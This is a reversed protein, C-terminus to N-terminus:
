ATSTAAPDGGAHQELYDALARLAHPRDRAGGLAMNCGHCLISRVKGTAHCHDVHWGLKNGPEPARCGPNGCLRGQTAFMEDWQASTIGYLRVLRANRRAVRDRERNKDKWRRTRAAHAEKDNQYRAHNYKRRFERMKEPNTERERWERWAAHPDEVTGHMGKPYWSLTEGVDGVVVFIFVFFGRLKRRPDELWV